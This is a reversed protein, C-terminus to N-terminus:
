SGLLPQDHEFLVENIEYIDYFGKSIYFEVIVDSLISHSLAYGASELFGRTEDLNLQLAIALSLVTNKKPRYDKNSCIKSFLKRDLCARKYCQPATINKEYLLRQLRDSFSEDLLFAPKAHFISGYTKKREFTKGTSAPKKVSISESAQENRPKSDQSELIIEKPKEEAKPASIPACSGIPSPIIEEQPRPISMGFVPGASFDRYYRKIYLELGEPRRSKRLKMRLRYFFRRIM